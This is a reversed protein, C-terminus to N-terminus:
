PFPASVIQLTPIREFHARNTTLVTLGHRLATTGILLDLDGILQNAQRLRARHEGFLRCIEDDLPLSAVDTLAVALAAEATPPDAARYLGEYLEALSVISIALQAAGLRQMTRTYATEGRLHRILWSTDLLHTATVL